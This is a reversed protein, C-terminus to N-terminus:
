FYRKFHPPDYFLGSDPSLFGLTDMKGNGTTLPTTDEQFEVRLCLVRVTDTGGAQLKRFRALDDPFAKHRYRDFPATTKEAASYNGLLRGVYEAEGPIPRRGSKVLQLERAQAAGALLFVVTLLAPV